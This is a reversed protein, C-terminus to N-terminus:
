LEVSGEPLPPVAAGGGAVDRWLHYMVGFSVVVLALVIAVYLPIALLIAIWGGLLKALLGIVAAVLLLVLGSAIAAVIVVVALVLLPLLNRIAGSFGDALAGGFRRGGLAVQGLGISQVAYVLLMVLSILISVTGSGAPLQPLQTPPQGSAQAQVIQAYWTGLEPSFTAVIGAVLANQLVALALLLGFARLSTQMDSFGKLVDTATAPRGSEVADITRLYGVILCAAVLLLPLTVLLSLALAATSGPQLTATFLGIVMSMVIVVGMIAVFFLAAGGFIARPNGAGLNIARKIWDFGAGPGLARTTM